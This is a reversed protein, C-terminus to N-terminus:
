AVRRIRVIGKYAGDFTLDISEVIGKIGLDGLDVMDLLDLAPDIRLNCEVVQAYGFMKSVWSVYSSKSMTQAMPIDVSLVNDIKDNNIVYNETIDQTIMRYGKITNTTSVWNNGSRGCGNEFVIQYSSKPKSLNKNRNGNIWPPEPSDCGYYILSLPYEADIVFDLNTIYNKLWDSYSNVYLETLTRNISVKKYKISIVGYDNINFTSLPQSYCNNDDITYVTAANEDFNFSKMKNDKDIWMVKQILNGIHQWWEALTTLTSGEIIEDKIYDDSDDLTTM